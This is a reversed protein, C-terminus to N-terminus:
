ITPPLNNGGTSMRGLHSTAPELKAISGMAIPNTESLELESVCIYSQSIHHYASKHSPHIERTNTTSHLKLWFVKIYRTQQYTAVPPSPQIFHFGSATVIRESASVAYLGLDILGLIRFLAHMTLCFSPNQTGDM